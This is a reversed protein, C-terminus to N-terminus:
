MEEAQMIALMLARAKNLTEEHEMEPVSDAVIGAGSQLYYAGAHYYVSRIAICSDLNGNFDIYGVAGGYVERPDEELAEIIEMAKRKPAGTLTGAPFCAMFAEVPSIGPKLEGEVTSVIHVVHSCPELKMFDRVRVTGPQCVRGADNRALDVLMLHEAREKEDSLLDRRLAEDKEPDGTVRRTGAIPRIMLTGALVRAQMEPSAGMFVSSKEQMYFMYPSPNLKRLALYVKWPDAKSIRQWRRSLVVQFVDGCRIHEKAKLVMRCFTERDINVQFNDAANEREKVTIDPQPIFQLAKDLLNLIEQRAERYVVPSASESDTWVIIKLIGTFRDYVVVTGPLFFRQLPLRGSKPKSRPVKLYPLALDYSWYGVLGGSFHLSPFAPAPNEAFFNDLIKLQEQPELENGPLTLLPNMALISYRGNEEGTLSELLCYPVPPNLRELFTTIEFRALSIETYVPVYRYRRAQELYDHLDPYLDSRFIGAGSRASAHDHESRRM